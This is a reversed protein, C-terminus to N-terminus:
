ILMNGLEYKNYKFYIFDYNRLIFGIGYYKLIDISSARHTFISEDFLYTFEFLFKINFIKSGKIPMLLM